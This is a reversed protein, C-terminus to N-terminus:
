GYRDCYRGPMNLVNCNKQALLVSVLGSFCEIKVFYVAFRSYSITYPYWQAISCSYRHKMSVPLIFFDHKRRRYITITIHLWNPAAEVATCHKEDLYYADCALGNGSSTRFWFSGVQSSCSTEQELQKFTTLYKICRKGFLVHQVVKSIVKRNIRLIKSVKSFCFCSWQM